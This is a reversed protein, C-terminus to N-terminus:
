FVAIQGAEAESLFQTLGMPGAVMPALQDQEVGMVDMAMSCAHIRADGLEVAQEFLHLVAPVNRAALLAGFPGETAAEPPPSKLFHPLANMSLFVTVPRASVAAVSVTMAAFQLRERAGSLCVVFLPVGM